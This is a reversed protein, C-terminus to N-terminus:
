HGQQHEHQETSLPRDLHGIRRRGMGSETFTRRKPSRFTDTSLIYDEDGAISAVGDYAPDRM